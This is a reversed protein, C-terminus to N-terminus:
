AAEKGIRNALDALATRYNFSGPKVWDRAEVELLECVSEIAIDYAVTCAECFLLGAREGWGEQDYNVPKTRGCAGNECYAPLFGVFGDNSSM